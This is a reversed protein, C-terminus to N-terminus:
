INKSIKLYLQNLKFKKSDWKGTWKGDIIEPTTALISIGDAYEDIDVIKYIKKTELEVTLLGRFSARKLYLEHENLEETFNEPINETINKSLCLRKKINKLSKLDRIIMNELDNIWYLVSQQLPCKGIGIRNIIDNYTKQSHRYTTRLEDSSIPSNNSKLIKVIEIGLQQCEILNNKLISERESIWVGNILSGESLIESTNDQDSM